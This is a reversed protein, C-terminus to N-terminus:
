KNILSDLIFNITLLASYKHIKPPANEKIVIPIVVFVVSIVLVIVTSGSREVGGIYLNGFLDWGGGFRV